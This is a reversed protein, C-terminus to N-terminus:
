KLVLYVSVKVNPVKRLSATTCPNYKSYVENLLGQNLLSLNQAIGIPVIKHCAILINLRNLSSCFLVIDINLM